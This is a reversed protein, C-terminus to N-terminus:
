GRALTRFVIEKFKANSSAICMDVNAPPTPDLTYRNMGYCLLGRTHRGQLEVEVYLPQYTTAVEPYAAIAVALGDPNTSGITHRASMEFTRRLTNSAIFFASRTTNFAAVHDFDEKKMISDAGITDGTVLLLPVGSSFVIDAAEPDVLINYGPASGSGHYSGGVFVIGRLDKALSPERLLAVAINSLGGLALITIEGPSSKAIRIIADVAHETDVTQKVEPTEIGGLGFKGHIFTAVPYPQNLLPRSIGAHVAVQGGRGSLDLVYLANKVQQEYRPGLNGPCVTIAEVQLSPADLALLLALADDNGPDTDVIVRRIGTVRPKPSVQAPATDGALPVGMTALGAALSGGIFQRRNLLSM